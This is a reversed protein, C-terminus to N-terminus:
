RHDNWEVCQLLKALLTPIERLCHHRLAWMTKKEQEHLEHLPDRDALLRLQELQQSVDSEQNLEDKGLRENSQERLTEAYEVMTEPTPYLVYQDKGYSYFLWIYHRYIYLYMIDFM